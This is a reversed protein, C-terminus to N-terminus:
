SAVFPYTGSEVYDFVLTSNFVKIILDTGSLQIDMGGDRDPVYHYKPSSLGDIVEIIKTRLASGVDAADSDQASSLNVEAGGVSIKTISTLATTDITVSYNKREVTEDDCLKLGDTLKLANLENADSNIRKSISM